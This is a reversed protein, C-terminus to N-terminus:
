YNNFKWDARVGFRAAVPLYADLFAQKAAGARPAIDQFSQWNSGHRRVCPDSADTSANDRMWAQYAYDSQLSLDIASHLLTVLQRATGSTTGSLSDLDAVMAKRSDIIPQTQAAAAAGTLGCPQARNGTTAPDFQDIITKLQGVEGASETLTADLRTV